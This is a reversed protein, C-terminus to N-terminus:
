GNYNRAVCFAFAFAGAAAGFLEITMALYAGHEFARTSQDLCALSMFIGAMAIIARLAM